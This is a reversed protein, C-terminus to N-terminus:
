QYRDEFFGRGQVATVSRPRPLLCLRFCDGTNLQAPHHGKGFREFAQIATTAMDDTIAVIATSVMELFRGVIERSRTVLIPWM